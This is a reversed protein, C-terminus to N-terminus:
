TITEDKAKSNRRTVAAGVRGSLDRHLSFTIVDASRKLEFQVGQMYVGSGGSYEFLKSAPVDHAEVWLEVWFAISEVEATGRPFDIVYRDREKPYSMHIRAPVRSGDQPVREYARSEAAAQMWATRVSCPDNTISHRFIKDDPKLNEFVSALGADPTIDGTVSLGDLRVSVREFNVKRLYAKVSELPCWSSVAAQDLDQLRRVEIGHFAAKDAAPVSFGSSSVAVAKAANLDNRKQALQEIWTVDEVGQRDRCEVIVLVPVSGITYRIAVDVERRSGTIKDSIYDPSTIEVEQGALCREILAVLEELDRGNRAM